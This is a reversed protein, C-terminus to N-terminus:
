NTVCKSRDTSYINTDDIDTQIIHRNQSKRNQYHISIHRSTFWNCADSIKTKFWQSTSVSLSCNKQQRFISQKDPVVPLCLEGLLKLCINGGSNFITMAALVMNFAALMELLSETFWNNLTFCLSSM